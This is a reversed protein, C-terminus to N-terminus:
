PAEKYPFPVLRLALPHLALHADASSSVSQLKTFTLCVLMWYTAIFSKRDPSMKVSLYEAWGLSRM